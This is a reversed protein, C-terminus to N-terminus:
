WKAVKQIDSFAMVFMSFQDRNDQKYESQIGLGYNKFKHDRNNCTQIFYISYTDDENQVIEWQGKQSPDSHVMVRM